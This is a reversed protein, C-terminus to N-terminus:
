KWNEENLMWDSLVLPNEAATELVAGGNGWVMSNVMWAELSLGTEMENGMMDWMMPTTMWTELTMADDKAVMSMDWVITNTMWAEMDLGNEAAMEFNSGLSNNWLVESTMWNEITMAPDKANELSSASRLVREIANASTSSMIITTMAMMMISLIRTKM